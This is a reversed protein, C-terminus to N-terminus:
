TIDEAPASLQVHGISIFDGSADKVPMTFSAFCSGVCDYLQLIAQNVSEATPGSVIIGSPTATAIARM